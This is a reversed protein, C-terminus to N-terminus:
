PGGRARPDRLRHGDSIPIKGRRVERHTVRLAAVDILSGVAARSGGAPSVPESRGWTRRRRLSACAPLLAWSVEMVLRPIRWRGPAVHLVCVQALWIRSMWGIDRQQYPAGGTCAGSRRAIPICVPRRAWCPGTLAFRVSGRPVEDRTPALPQTPDRLTRHLAQVPPNGKDMAYLPGGASPQGTARDMGRKLYWDPVCAPRLRCPCAVLRSMPVPLRGRGPHQRLSTAAPPEPRAATAAWRSSM